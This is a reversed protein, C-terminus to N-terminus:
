EFPRFYGIFQDPGSSRYNAVMIKARANQNNGFTSSGGGSMSLVYSHGDLEKLPQTIVMTVHGNYCAIDGPKQEGIAIPKSASSDRMSDARRYKEVWAGSVLGAHVLMTGTIGSCDGGKAKAEELNGTKIADLSPRGYYYLTGEGSLLYRAADKIDAEEFVDGPISAIVHDIWSLPTGLEFDEPTDSKFDFFSRKAEAEESKKMKLLSLLFLM